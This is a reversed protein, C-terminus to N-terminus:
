RTVSRRRHRGAGRDQCPARTSGGRGGHDGQRDRDRRDRRPNSRTARASSCKCPQGEGDHAVAGCSFTSPMADAKLTEQTPGRSKRGEQIEPPAKADETQRLQKVPTCGNRRRFGRRDPGDRREQQAQRQARLDSRAARVERGAGRGMASPCNQSVGAAHLIFSRMSSASRLIGTATRLAKERATGFGAITKAIAVHATGYCVAKAAQGSRCPPLALKELNAPLLRSTKRHRAPGAGDSITSPRTSSCPSRDRRRHRVAAGEEVHRHAPKRVSEVITRHDMPRITRLDIVGGRHRKPSSKRARLAYSMGIRSSVHHRGQRRPAIRAKGMPLVITSSPVPLRATPPDRKWSSLRIPIASGAEAAKADSATYPAIVKLRPYRTGPRFDQSHQAAVSAAAGNPGRFVHLQRDPWRVHLANACIIIQDMAQM